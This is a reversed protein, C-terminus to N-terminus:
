SPVPELALQYSHIRRAIQEHETNELLLDRPATKNEQLRGAPEPQGESYNSGALPARSRRCGM